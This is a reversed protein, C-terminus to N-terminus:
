YPYQRGFDELFLISANLKINNKRKNTINKIIRARDSSTMRDTFLVSANEGIFNITKLPLNALAKIINARDIGVMDDTFFHCANLAIALIKDQSLDALAKILVAHHSYHMDNTFFCSSNEAIARVGSSIETNPVNAFAVIMNVYKLTDQIEQVVINNALVLAKLSIEENPVNAFAKIIDCRGLFGMDPRFLIPVYTAIVSTKDASLTDFAEIIRRRDERHMANTFLKSSNEAIASRKNTDKIYATENEIAICQTYSVKTNNESFDSTWANSSLTLAFASIAVPKCFANKM